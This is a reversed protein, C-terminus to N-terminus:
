GNGGTPAPKVALVSFCPVLPPLAGSRVLLWAIWARLRHYGDRHGPSVLHLLTREDALPVIRTCSAFDPWHAHTEIKVLGLAQLAAAQGAPSRFRLGRRCSRAGLLGHDELYLVGGPRLLAAAHALEGATPEHVVVLDFATSDGGPDPGIPTVTVGNARALGEFVIARQGGVAAVRRPCPDALLFRWDHRALSNGSPAVALQPCGDRRPDWRDIRRGRIVNSVAVLAATLAVVFFFPVAVVKIQGFRTTRLLAGLLASGIIAAELVAAARYLSGCNWLFPTVILLLLLPIASL